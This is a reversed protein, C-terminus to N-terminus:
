PATAVGVTVWIPPAPAMGTRQVIVQDAMWLGAAHGRPLHVDIRPAASIPQLSGPPVRDWARRIGQVLNFRVATQTM